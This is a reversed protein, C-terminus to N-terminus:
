SADVLVAGDPTPQVPQCAPGVKGALRPCARVVDDLTGRAPVGVHRVCL